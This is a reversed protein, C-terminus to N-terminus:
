AVSILIHAERRRRRGLLEFNLDMEPSKESGSLLSAPPAPFIALEWRKWIRARLARQSEIQQASSWAREIRSALLSIKVEYFGSSRGRRKEKHLM